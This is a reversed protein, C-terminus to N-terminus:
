GLQSKRANLIKVDCFPYVFPGAVHFKTAIYFSGRILELSYHSRELVKIAINYTAILGRPQVDLARPGVTLILQLRTFTGAACLKEKVVERYLWIFM